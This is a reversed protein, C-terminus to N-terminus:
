AVPLLDSVPQADPQGLTPDEGTPMPMEQGAPMQNAQAEAAQADAEDKLADVDTMFTLILDLREDPVNDVKSQLYTLQALQKAQVLDMYPEPSMYVGEEIISGLMKLVIDRPSLTRSTEATIDPFDLLAVGQERELMGGQLMEQVKQFRGEPSSPLLSTPFLRMKYADIDMRVASWKLTKVFKNSEVKVKLDTNKKHLEDNMDVIIEAASLFMQDYKQSTWKFRDSEIDQMTRLAIGATMGSPKQGQASLQSIGTIEFARRYLTEFHQYYEAPMAPPTMYIPPNGAYYRVGGVENSLNSPVTQSTHELWVQPVSVLHQSIAIMRLMKNLELQIGVIEEALSRGYFGLMRDSYRLFLFPFWERSWKEEFLDCNEITVCHSGDTAGTFSPLHWSETVLLMDAARSNVVDLDVGSKCAAIEEKYGPFMGSVVERAIYRAQHIQRPDGYIAETEDVIIEDCIVRDVGIKGTSNHLKLVGTGLVCADRLALTGLRWMGIEDYLGELYNTLDKARQREYWNGKDTLAMPKPRATGIKSVLTDTCSKIVNVTIRKTQASQTIPSNYKGAGFGGIQENEYLQAMFLNRQHRASQADKVRKVFAAIHSHKEHKPELWWKSKIDHEAISKTVYEVRTNSM